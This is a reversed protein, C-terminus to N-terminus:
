GRLSQGDWGIGEGNELKTKVKQKEAQMRPFSEETQEHDDEDPADPPHQESSM